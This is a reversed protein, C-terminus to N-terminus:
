GGAKQLRPATATAALPTTNPAAFSGPCVASTAPPNLLGTLTGLVQNALGINNIGSLSSFGANPM